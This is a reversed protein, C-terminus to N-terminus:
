PKWTVREVAAAAHKRVLMESSEALPRLQELAPQLKKRGKPAEAINAICKAVNVTLTCTAPTMGGQLELLASQQLLPLLVKYAKKEVAEHKGENEVTLSMLAALQATVAKAEAETELLEVLKGIADGKRAVTKEGLEVTLAALCLAAYERTSPSEAALMGIMTLIAGTAIAEALGASQMMCIRLAALSPAQLEPAEAPAADVLLKVCGADILAACGSPDRGLELIATLCNARVEQVSDKVLKQLVKISSHKLMQERGNPERALRALASSTLTRVEEDEDPAAINLAPVIGAELFSAIEVPAMMKGNAYRLSKQRLVLSSGTMEGVLKPHAWSGFGPALTDAPMPEPNSRVSVDVLVKLNAKMGQPKPPEYPIGQVKRCVAHMAANPQVGYDIHLTSAWVQTRATIQLQSVLFFRLIFM